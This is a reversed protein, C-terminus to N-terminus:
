IKMYDYRNHRPAPEQVVSPRNLFHKGVWHGKSSYDRHKQRSTEANPTKFQSRQDIKLQNKYLTFSIFKM